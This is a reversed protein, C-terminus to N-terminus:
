GTRMRHVVAVGILTKRGVALGRDLLLEVLEGLHASVEHTINVSISIEYKYGQEGALIGINLEDGFTDILDILAEADAPLDTVAENIFSQLRKRRGRNREELLLKRMEESLEVPIRFSTRVWLHQQRQLRSSPRQPENASEDGEPHLIVHPLRESGAAAVSVHGGVVPEHHPNRIDGDEPLGTLVVADIGTRATSGDPRDETPDDVRRPTVGLSHRQKLAAIRAAEVRAGEAKPDDPKTRSTTRSM